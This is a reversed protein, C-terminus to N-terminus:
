EKGILDMAKNLRTSITGDINTTDSLIVVGGPSIAEDAEIKISDGNFQESIEKFDFPNVKIKFTAVSKLSDILASAISKAVHSSNQELEKKIVKQAILVASEILDEEINVFQGAITSTQEDLLTISRILQSKLDDNEGQISEGTEKIGEAKGAEFAENKAITLEEQRSKKENELEMQLSVIESTLLDIKELFESSNEQTQEETESEDPLNEELTGKFINTNFQDTKNEIELKGFEYKQVKVSGTSKANIVDSM